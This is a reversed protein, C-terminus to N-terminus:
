NRSAKRLQGTRVWRATPPVASMTKMLVRPPPSCGLSTIKQSSGARQIQPSLTSKSVPKQRRKIVLSTPRPSGTSVRTKSVLVKTDVKLQEVNESEDLVILLDRQFPPEGMGIYKIKPEKGVARTFLGLVREEEEAPLKKLKGAPLAIEFWDEEEGSVEDPIVVKRSSVVVGTGTTFEVTDTEPSSFAPFRSEPGFGPLNTASDLIVKTAAVTGHGCLGVESAPTFYRVDFSVVGPKGAAAL